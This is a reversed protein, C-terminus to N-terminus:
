HGEPGFIDGNKNLYDDVRNRIIEDQTPSTGWNPNRNHYSDQIMQDVDLVDHREAVLQHSNEIHVFPETHNDILTGSQEHQHQHQHSNEIHVIPEDHTGHSDTWCDHQVHGDHHTHYDHHHEM